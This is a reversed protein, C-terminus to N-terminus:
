RNRELQEWTEQWKAQTHVPWVAGDPIADLEATDVTWGNRMPLSAEATMHVRDALEASSYAGLAWPGNLGDDGIVLWVKM